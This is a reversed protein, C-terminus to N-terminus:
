EGGQQIYQQVFEQANVELVDDIEDLLDDDALVEDIKSLTDTVEEDTVETEAGKPVEETTEEETQTKSKSTHKQGSM